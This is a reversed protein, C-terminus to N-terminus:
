YVRNVALARLPTPSRVELDGSVRKIVISRQSGGKGLKLYVPLGLHTSTRGISYGRAQQLEALLPSAHEVDHQSASTSATPPPSATSSSQEPILPSTTAIWRRRRALIASPQQLHACICRVPPLFARQM